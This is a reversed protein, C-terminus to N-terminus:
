GRVLNMALREWEWLRQPEYRVTSIDKLILECACGHEACASLTQGLDAEVLELSFDDRALLSPPPKRSFVLDHGLAEAGRRVDVWPSMSVKRVNPLRRVMGIRDDLPECCGYYVLGFREFWPSMYPVEFEEHMAPSVSSFVQAMGFTWLDKARPRDPDYGEAPLEDNYAGTCHVWDVRDALLGKAELQDLMGMAAEMLRRVLEHMFEPRDAVDWLVAEPNRWMSIVDWASIWPAQGVMRFPLVGEFVERALDERRGTAEVDLDVCPTQIRDLDADCQLQDVYAHGVVGNQPDLVAVDEVTGVGYGTSRIVKDVALEGPMVFDARMHKWRYLWTRLQWELDRLFPDQCLVTLEDDVNMEHWPIQDIAVMPREPKLANSAKWLRITEQQQPLAAIQAVQRGLERLTERDQTSTM